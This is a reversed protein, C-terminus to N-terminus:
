HGLQLCHMAHLGCQEQTGLPLYSEYPVIKDKICELVEEQFASKGVQHKKVQVLM